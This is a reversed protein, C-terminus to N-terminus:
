RTPAAPASHHATEHESESSTTEAAAEDPQASTSADSQPQQSKAVGIVGVALRAGANGTPQGGDDPQAHLVVARGLVPDHASISFANFTQDFEARGTDDATVNGLDGAHRPTDPPLAHPHGQPAYHSGASTGDPASIDGFEHIHFGHTTNPELGEIVAVVRVGDDQQEFRVVGQVDSGETPQLVAVAHRVKGGMMGDMKHEGMMEDGMMAHHDHGEDAQQDSPRPQPQQDQQSAAPQVTLLVIISVLLTVLALATLTSRM